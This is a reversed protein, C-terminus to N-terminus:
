FQFKQAPLPLPLLLRPAFIHCHLWLRQPSSLNFCLKILLGMQCVGQRCQSEALRCTIGTERERERDVVMHTHTHALCRFNCFIFIVACASTCNHCAVHTGHVYSQWLVPRGSLCVSPAPLAPQLPLLCSRYTSRKMDTRARKPLGM